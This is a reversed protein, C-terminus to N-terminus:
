APSRLVARESIISDCAIQWDPFRFEFGSEQLKGPVVRRSKLLLETETGMLFAGVALMWSTAPLGLPAHVTERLIQMFERNSIPHPAACNVPGSLDDHNFIWEIARAFDAAHIWSVFQTGPGLTGGLGRRALMEFADMAGGKQSGFVIATRLAVKRTHPTEAENFTAEWKQCVDVSFGNGIEGNAEDMARDEAHRYITASSSNIWIIPPQKCQAIAEGLIKTPKLRSDYIEQKNRDNYRCNVSRGALNIIADAGDIENAWEDLKEGDWHVL